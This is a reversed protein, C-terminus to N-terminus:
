PIDGVLKAAATIAAEQHPQLGNYGYQAIVKRWPDKVPTKIGSLEELVALGCYPVHVPSYGGEHSMVLRGNCLQEAAEMVLQTLTRFGESSMMMRGLPDVASADYGCAVVILEPKFRELAPLVVRRMAVSYAEDGCGPPLPLNLNAGRGAGAGNEALSGSNPPYLNDQHISITLVNPNDYFAAQTGNGHHVDWDVVAIRDLKHAARAHMVSLAVNAFLCFGMGENAVAHHGPPRVLAYANKVRGEIVADIAAITGGASLQAIEFSGRGFPTLFSADGGNQSSQTKIREIYERTHFRALEDESVPRAKLSVLHDSLGSVEILNRFRRKTEASEAHEGPQLTLGPPFLQAWNWTNHWLYIEHFVFGTAM